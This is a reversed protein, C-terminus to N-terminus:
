ASTQLKARSKTKMWRRVKKRDLKDWVTFFAARAARAAAQEAKLLRGAAEAFQADDVHQELALEIEHISM